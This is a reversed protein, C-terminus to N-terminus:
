LSGATASARLWARLQSHPWFASKTQLSPYLVVSKYVSPWSVTRHACEVTDEVEWQTCHREARIGTRSDMSGVLRLESPFAMLGVLKFCTGFYANKCAWLLRLNRSAPEPPSKLVPAGMDGTRSVAQSLAWKKDCNKTLLPPHFLEQFMNCLYPRAQAQSLAWKEDWACMKRWKYEGVGRHPCFGKNAKTNRKM